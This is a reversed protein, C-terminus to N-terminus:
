ETVSLGPGFSAEEGEESPYVEEIFYPFRAMVDEM